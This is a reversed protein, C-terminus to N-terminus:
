TLFAMHLYEALRKNPVEKFIRFNDHQKCTNRRVLQNLILRETIYVGTNDSCDVLMLWVIASAMKM